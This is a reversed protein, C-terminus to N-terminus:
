TWRCCCGRGPSGRATRRSCWTTPWTSRPTSIEDDSVLLVLDGFRPTSVLPYDNRYAESVAAADTYRDDAQANFFNLATWHCERGASRGTSARAEPYAYLRQRAFPPLLHVVDISGGGATHALSHFLTHVAKARGGQGWYDVLPAIDQGEDVHLQLMLSSESALTQILRLRERRDAVATLALPLDALFLFHGHSYILPEVQEGVRPALEAAHLWDGAEAGWYRFANVQRRNGPLQMLRTYLRRRVTPPLARVLAEDPEIVYGATGASRRTRSLLAEFMADSLELGALFGALANRDAGPLRWRTAGSVEDLSPVVDM